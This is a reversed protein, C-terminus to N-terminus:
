ASCPCSQSQVPTGPPQPALPQPLAQRRPSGPPALPRPLWASLRTSCGDPRPAGIARPWSISRHSLLEPADGRGTDWLCPWLSSPILLLFAAWAPCPEPRVGPWLSWGAGPVAPVLWVGTARFSSELVTSPSAPQLKFKFTLLPQTSPSWLHGGREQSSPAPPHVRHQPVSRPRPSALPGASRTRLAGSALPPLQAGPPVAPVLPSSRQGTRAQGSSWVRSGPPFTGAWVCRRM